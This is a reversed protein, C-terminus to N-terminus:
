FSFYNCFSEFHNFLAPLTQEAPDDGFSDGLTGRGFRRVQGFQNFGTGLFAPFRLSQPLDGVDPEFDQDRTQLHQNRTSPRM